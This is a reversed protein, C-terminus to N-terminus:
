IHLLNEDGMFKLSKKCIYKTTQSFYIHLIKKHTVYKQRKKM